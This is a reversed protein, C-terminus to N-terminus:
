NLSIVNWRDRSLKEYNPEDNAFVFVHPSNMIVMGGEYKGSYFLGDKISEMSEYSIFDQTCRPVNYIIILPYENKKLFYQLIANKCNDSKGSLCIAKKHTCIYKALATKGQNGNAEWVWHITRDDPEHSLIDIINAQWPYFQDVSILKLEVPAPINTWLRGNRTEQKQCYLNSHPVSRTKEWHIAPINKKNETPRTKSTFTVNGQLHRTGSEGIEEQFIYIHNSGQFWSVLSDINKENYNNFTFFWNKSSTIRTPKSTNGYVAAGPPAMSSNSM